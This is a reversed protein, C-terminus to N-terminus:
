NVVKLRLRFEVGPACNVVDVEGGMGTVLQHVLALGIGTGITERTLENESRYFLKFIKKMQDKAVGPGFDRVSIQMANDQLQRIAIQVIKDEADASFKIANDVLNILIQTLWDSDIRLKAALASEACTLELKFGANELQSELKPRLEALLSELRTDELSPKQENRTMRALHLVNNILRSLRESENFIFDYYTKKRTEDAWGERLMEGYMRISTLPTKLEHSVASVFDQQQQSLAIAGAGLRYLLLFGGVLVISLILAAWIIIQSGAGVPLRALSFNMELDSFPAILRTQYLLESDTNQQTPLYESSYNAAFQRVLNGQYTIVLDSMSSLVSETFAPAILGDLLLQPEILLGQVYRAGDRWVRRFLVFHGSDLLSFEMPDVETEFTHIRIAQQQQKQMLGSGALEDDASGSSDIDSAFNLETLTEPLVSTEKRAQKGLKRKKSENLKDLRRVSAIEDSDELKLDDVWELEAPSDLEQTEAKSRSKLQDFVLQGQLRPEENETPAYASISELVSEEAVIEPEALSRADKSQPLLARSAVTKAPAEDAKKVLRNESLIDRIQNELGVRQRLEPAAIGYSSAGSQPVTPTALQGEADVQFYGLIGPVQSDLPFGSLPSRQLFNSGDGGAVNLFAYDTFSRNEERQILEKFRRDILLSFERALQQHQHFAEWKLQGYAQFVLVATPIALGVFLLLLLVQLRRKNM